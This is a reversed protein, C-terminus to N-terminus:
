GLSRHTVELEVRVKPETSADAKVESQLPKPETPPVPNQPSIEEETENKAAQDDPRRGYCIALIGLVAITLSFCMIAIGGLILGVIASDSVSFDEKSLM